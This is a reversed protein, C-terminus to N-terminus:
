ARLPKMTGVYAVACVIIQTM